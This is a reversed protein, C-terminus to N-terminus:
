KLLTEKLDESFPKNGFWINLYALAIKPDQLTGLDQGNLQLLLGKLPDYILDNRQRYFAQL